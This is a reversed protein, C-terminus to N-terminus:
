VGLQTKNPMPPNPVGLLMKNPLLLGLEGLLMKNLTPFLGKAGRIPVVQHSQNLILDVKVKNGQNLTMKPPMLRQKLPRSQQTTQLLLVEEIPVEEEEETEEEERAEEEDEKSHAVAGILREEEGTEEVVTAAVVEPRPVEIKTKHDQLNLDQDEAEVEEAVRVEALSRVRRTGFTQPSM